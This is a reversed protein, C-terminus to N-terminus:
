HRHTRRGRRARQRKTQESGDPALAGVADDAGLRRPEVALEGHDRAAVGADAELDHTTEGLAAGFDNEGCARGRRRVGCALRNRALGARREVVHREVERIERRDRRRAIRNRRDRSISADVNEDLVGAHPWLRM